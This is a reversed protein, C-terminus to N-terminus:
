AAKPRRKRRHPIPCGVQPCPPIDHRQRLKMVANVARSSSHGRKDNRGPWQLHDAIEKDQMRTALRRVAEILDPQHAALQEYTLRGDVALGVTIPDYADSAEVDAPDLNPQATPDDIADDDWALPPAWGAAKARAMTVTSPGPTMSLADYARRVGAATEHTIWKQSAIGEVRTSLGGAEGIHHFTWGIRQLARVRRIAGTPDTLHSCPADTIPQEPVPVSLIKDAIDALAFKRGTKYAVAEYTGRSLGAATYIERGKMGAAALKAIHERVEEIPVTTRQGSELRRRWVRLRWNNWRRCKPCGAASRNHEDCYPVRAYPGKAPTRQRTITPRHATITM